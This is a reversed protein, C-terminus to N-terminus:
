LPRFVGLVCTPDLVAIQVHTQQYIMAGDYAPNGEAFACRVTQYQVSDMQQLYYNIVVCDLYRGKIDDDKGVNRPMPKGEAEYSTRVQDYALALNHTNQEDTLDFCKGLQIIAGIVAPEEGTGAAKERAWRLARAPAHEWFYIGHGLWDFNNKSPKWEHTGIEGSLVREAFAKTCGHYGIVTRAFPNM